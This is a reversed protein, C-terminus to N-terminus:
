KVKVQVCRYRECASASAKEAHKSLYCYTNHNILVLQLHLLVNKNKFLFANKVNKKIEEVNKKNIFINVFLELQLQAQICSFSVLKKSTQVATINIKTASSTQLWKQTCSTKTRTVNKFQNKSTKIEVEVNKVDISRRHGSFLAQLKRQM